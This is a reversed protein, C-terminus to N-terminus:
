HNYNIALVGGYPADAARIVKARVWVFNGSFNVYNTTTTAVINTTRDYVVSSNTIDFWDIEVPATALTAQVLLTGSFNPAVTYTVTHLGDSSGYYGDGKEEKSKFTSTLTYSDIGGPPLASGPISVSTATTTMTGLAFLFQQSLSPMSYKDLFAM